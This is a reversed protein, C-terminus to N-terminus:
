VHAGVLAVGAAILLFFCFFFLCVLQGTGKSTGPQFTAGLFLLGLVFFVLSISYIIISAFM